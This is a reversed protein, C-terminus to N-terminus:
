EFAIWYIRDFSHGSYFNFGNDYFTIGSNSIVTFYPNRTAADWTHYDGNGSHRAVLVVNPKFDLGTVLANNSAGGVYLTGNAFKKGISINKITDALQTFTDSGSPNLSNDVDTIATAISNKGNSVNTFLESLAGEVDTAIFNSDADHIGIKSAGKEVENSALEDIRINTNKLESDIIDMNGNQIDIDFYENQLPKELNFNTTYEPM